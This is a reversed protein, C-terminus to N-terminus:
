GYIYAVGDHSDNQTLNKTDFKSKKGLLSKRSIAQAERVRELNGHHASLHAISPFDELVDEVYGIYQETSKRDKHNMLTQVLKPDATLMYMRCGFSHRLSHLKTRNQEYIGITKYGKIVLKSLKDAFSEITQMKGKISPSPSSTFEDRKQHVDRVMQILEPSLDVSHEKGSKSIESDIIVRSGKIKGQILEMRRMGSDWYVKCANRVWLPISPENILKHFDIENIRKPRPDAKPQIVKIKIKKPIYEMDYLWKLFAKIVTQETKLSHPRLEKARKQQHDLYDSVTIDKVRKNGVIDRFKRLRTTNDRISSKALGESEKQRLWKKSLEKITTPDEAKGNEFWQAIEPKLVVDQKTLEGNILYKRYLNITDRRSLAYIENDTQLPIEMFKGKLKYTYYYKGRRNRVYKM